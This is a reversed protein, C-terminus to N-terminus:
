IVKAKTLNRHHSLNNTDLFLSSGDNKQYRVRQTLVIKPDFNPKPNSEFRFWYSGDEFQILGKFAYADQRITLM